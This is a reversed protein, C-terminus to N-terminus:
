PLVPIAVSESAICAAGGIQFHECVKQYACISSIIAEAPNRLLGVTDQMKRMFTHEDFDTSTPRYTPYFSDDMKLQLPLDEEGIEMAECYAKHVFRM